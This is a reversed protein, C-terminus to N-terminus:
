MWVNAPTTQLLRTGDWMFKIICYEDPASSNTWSNATELHSGDIGIYDAGWTVTRSGTGDQEFIFTIEQGESLGNKSGASFNNITVNGTMPGVKFRCDAKATPVATLSGTVGLEIFDANVGALGYVFKQGTIPTFATNSDFIHISDGTSVNLTNDDWDLRSNVSDLRIWPVASSQDSRTKRITTSGTGASSMNEYMAYDQFNELKSMHCNDYTLHYSGTSAVDNEITHVRNMSEFYTSDHKINHSANHDADIKMYIGHANKMFWCSDTKICNGNGPKDGAANTFPGAGFSMGVGQVMSFQHSANTDNATDDLTITTSGVDTVLTGQDFDDSVIQMGVEVYDTNSVNTIEDSGSTTNGTINTAIPQSGFGCQLFNIIDTNFGFEVGYNYGEFLCREFLVNTTDDLIMHSSFNRIFLDRFASMFVIESNPTGVGGMQIAATGTNTLGPGEMSFSEFGVGLVQVGTAPTGVKFTSVGPAEQVIKTANIGQGKVTLGGHGQTNDYNPWFTIPAMKDFDIIGDVHIEGSPMIVTRAGSNGASLDDAMLQMKDTQDETASSTIGYSEEADIIATSSVNVIRPSYNVVRM